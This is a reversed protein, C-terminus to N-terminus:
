RIRCRCPMPAAAASRRSARAEKLDVRRWRVVGDVERDPRTEVIKTFEALQEASLPPKPGETWNDLLGDPGVPIGRSDPIM